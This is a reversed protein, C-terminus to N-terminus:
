ASVALCRLEDDDDEDDLEVDEEDQEEDCGTESLDTQDGQRKTRRIM